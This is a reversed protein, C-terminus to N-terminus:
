RQVLSPVFEAAFAVLLVLSWGIATTYNILRDM